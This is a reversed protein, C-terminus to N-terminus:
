LLLHTSNLYIAAVVIVLCDATVVVFSAFM